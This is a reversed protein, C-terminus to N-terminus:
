VLIRLLELLHLFAEDRTEGPPEDCVDLAGLELRADRDEHLLRLELLDLEGGVDDEAERLRNAAVDALELAAEDPEGRLAREERTRDVELEHLGLERRRVDAADALLADLVDLADDGVVELQAGAVE